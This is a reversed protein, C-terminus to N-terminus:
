QLEWTLWEKWLSPSYPWKRVAKLIYSRASVKDGIRFYMAAIRRYQLALLDPYRTLVEIHKQMIHKYGEIRTVSAQNVNGHEHRHLKVLVKENTLFDTVQVLRLFFDRDVASRLKEDFMGAEEICSKRITVGRSTSVPTSRLFALYALETTAYNPRNPLTTKLTIEGNPTDKVVCFGSWVFGVNPPASNFTEFTVKLFDPLYEDDDDLFTIYQSRASRVGLNRVAANGGNREMRVYVIRPDNYACVVEKTNDSSADDVIVLEFDDFTQALVSDIARPLLAARNYTPIVVSFTPNAM